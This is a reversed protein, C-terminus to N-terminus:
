LKEKAMAVLANCGSRQRIKALQPKGAAALRQLAFLHQMPVFGDFEPLRQTTGGKTDILLSLKIPKHGPGRTILTRGEWHGQALCQLGGVAGHVTTADPVQQNVKAEPLRM